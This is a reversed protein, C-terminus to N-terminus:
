EEWGARGAWALRASRESSLRKQNREVQLARGARTQETIRQYLESSFIKPVSAEPGSTGDARLVRAFLGIVSRLDCSLDVRGIAYEPLSPADMGDGLLPGDLAAIVPSDMEMTVFGLERSRRLGRNHRVPDQCTKSVRETKAHCRAAGDLLGSILLPHQQMLVPM